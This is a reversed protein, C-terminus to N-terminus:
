EVREPWHWSGGVGPDGETLEQDFFLGTPNMVCLDVTLPAGEVAPHVATVVAARCTPAFKGGVSGYSTYHVVRGVSPAQQQSM